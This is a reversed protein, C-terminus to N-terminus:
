FDSGTAAKHVGKLTEWPNSLVSTIASGARMNWGPGTKTLQTGPLSDPLTLPNGQEDWYGLEIGRQYAAAKTNSDGTALKQYLNARDEAITAIRIPSPEGPQTVIKPQTTPSPVNTEKGSLADTLMQDLPSKEKRFMEPFLIREMGNTKTLAEVRQQLKLSRVLKMDEPNKDMGNEKAWRDIALDAADLNQLEMANKKVEREVLLESQLQLRKTEAEEQANDRIFQQRSQYEMKEMEWAQARASAELDAAEKLQLMREQYMQQAAQQGSEFDRAKQTREGAAKGAAEAAGAVAGVPTYSIRIAM